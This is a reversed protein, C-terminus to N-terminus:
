ILQKAIRKIIEAVGSVPNQFTAIIVEAFDPNIRKINRLRRIVFSENPNPQELERIIEL